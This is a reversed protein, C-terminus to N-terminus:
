QGVKYIQVMASPAAPYPGGAVTPVLKANLNSTSWYIVVDEAPAIRTLFSYTIEQIHTNPVTYVQRSFPINSGLKTTWFSLQADGGGSSHEVRANVTIMYVGASSVNIKESTAISIGDSIIVGPYQVALQTNIITHQQTVTSYFQGYAFAQEGQILLSGFSGLNATIGFAGLDVDQTAGNYPVFGTLVSPDNALALMDGVSFNKTANNDAVETGILIDSLTVTGATPYTSIKAM